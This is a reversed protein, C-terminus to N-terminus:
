EAIARGILYLVTAIAALWFTVWGLYVVGGIVTGVTEGASPAFPERQMREWEEDLKADQNRWDNFAM